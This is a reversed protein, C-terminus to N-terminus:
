HKQETECAAEAWAFNSVTDTKAYYRVGGNRVPAPVSKPDIEGAKVKRALLEAISM